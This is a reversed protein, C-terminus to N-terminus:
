VYRGSVVRALDRLNDRVSTTIVYEEPAETAMEGREIWYGEIQCFRDSKGPCPIPQSLLSTSNRLHSLINVRIMTEVTPHSSRDLQTLFSM